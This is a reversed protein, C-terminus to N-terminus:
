AIFPNLLSNNRITFFIWINQSTIKNNQVRFLNGFSLNSFMIFDKSLRKSLIIETFKLLDFFFFIFFRKKLIHAAAINADHPVM